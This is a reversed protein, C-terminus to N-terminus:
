DSSVAESITEIVSELAGSADDGVPAYICGDSYRAGNRHAIEAIRRGDPVNEEPHGFLIWMATHGDDTLIWREGDRRLIINFEDGDDFLCGTHIRYRDKGVKEATLPVAKGMEALIRNPVSCAM